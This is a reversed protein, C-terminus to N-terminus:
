QPRSGRIAGAARLGSILAAEYCGADIGTRTWDGAVHLNGFHCIAPDLRKAVSGPPSLVYGDTASLNLRVDVREIRPIPGEPRGLGERLVRELNKAVWAETLERAAQHERAVFDTWAEGEAPRRVPWAGCLYSLHTGDGREGGGDELFSMDAWTGFPQPNATLIPYRRPESPAPDIGRLEVAITPIQGASAVAERWQPNAVCLPAAIREVVLPPVALLVHTFGDDDDAGHKLAFPEVFPCSASFGDAELNLERESLWSHMDDGQELLDFKPETPWCLRDGYEILPDYGVRGARPKAQRTGYIAEIHSGSADLALADVRHFFAFRVGLSRLVEYYPTFLVEATAGNFHYFVSGKFTLVLNLYGRVATGAAIWRQPPATQGDRYAFPYDYGARVFSSDLVAKSAGHRRLWTSAEVDNVRDFNDPLMNDELLGIAVVAALAALTAGDRAQRDDVGLTIFLQLADRLPRLMLALSRAALRTAPRARNDGELLSQRLLRLAEKLLFASRRELAEFPLRLLSPLDKVRRMFQGFAIEILAALLDIPEISAQDFDPSRDSPDL